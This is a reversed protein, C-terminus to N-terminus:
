AAALVGIPQNVPPSPMAVGQQTPVTPGQPVGIQQSGTSPVVPVPPSAQMPPAVPMVNPQVGEQPRAEQPQMTPVAVPSAGQPVALPQGQAAQNPNLQTSQTPFSGGPHLGPSPPTVPTPPKPPQKQIIKLSGGQDVVTGIPTNAAAYADLPILLAACFGTLIPFVMYKQKMEINGKTLHLIVAKSILMYCRDLFM